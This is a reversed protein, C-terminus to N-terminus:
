GDWDAEGVFQAESIEDRCVERVLAAEVVPLVFGFDFIVSLVSGTELEDGDLELMMMYFLVIDVDCHLAYVEGVFPKLVNEPELQECEDM